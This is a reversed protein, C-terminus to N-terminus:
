EVAEKVMRYLDAAKRLEDPEMGISEFQALRNEPGEFIAFSYGDPLEDKTLFVNMGCFMTPAFRLGHGGIGSFPFAEVKVMNENIAITNAKIGEKFAVIQAKRVMEIFKDRGDELKADAPFSVKVYEIKKVPECTKEPIEQNWCDICSRGLGLCKIWTGSSDKPCVHEDIWSVGPNDKEWQERYTM